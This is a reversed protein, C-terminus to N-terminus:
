QVLKFGFQEQIKKKIEDPDGKSTEVIQKIEKKHEVSLSEQNSKFKEELEEITDHYQVILKDKESLEKKHNRKLVAIQEEYSNKRAELVELAANNNKRSFIWIFLSWSVLAVIKWHEKLWIWAKVLSYM